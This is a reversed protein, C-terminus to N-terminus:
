NVSYSLSFEWGSHLDDSVLLKPFPLAVISHFWVPRDAQYPKDERQEIYSVSCGSCNGGMKIQVSSVPKGVYWSMVEAWRRVTQRYQWSSTRDKPTGWCHLATFLLIRRYRVATHEAPGHKSRGGTVKTGAKPSSVARQALPVTATSLLCCPCYSKVNTM